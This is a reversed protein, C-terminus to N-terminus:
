QLEKLEDQLEKLNWIMETTDDKTQQYTKKDKNLPDALWEERQMILKSLNEAEKSVVERTRTSTIEMTEM